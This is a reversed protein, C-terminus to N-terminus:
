ASEYVPIGYRKQRRRFIIVASEYLRWDNPDDEKAVAVLAQQSNYSGAVMHDTARINQFAPAPLRGGYMAHFLCMSDNWEDTIGVFAARAMRDIARNVMAETVEVVQACYLGNLMKVQCDQIGPYKIFDRLSHVQEEMVKHASNAGFAHMGYNYASYLRRRPDRVMM